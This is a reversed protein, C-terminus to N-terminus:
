LRISNKVNQKKRFDAIFRAKALDRKSMKRMWYPQMIKENMEDPDTQIPRAMFQGFLKETNMKQFEAEFEPDQVDRM